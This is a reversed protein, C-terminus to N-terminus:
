DCPVVGHNKKPGFKLSGSRPEGIWTAGAFKHALSLSEGGCKVVSPAMTSERWLFAGNTLRPKQPGDPM